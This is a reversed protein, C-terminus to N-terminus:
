MMAWLRRIFNTFALMSAMQVLPKSTAWFLLLVRLIMELSLLRPFNAKASLTLYTNTVVRDIQNPSPFSSSFMYNFCKM